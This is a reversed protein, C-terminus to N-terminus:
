DGYNGLKEIKWNGHGLGHRRSAVINNSREGPVFGREGLNRPRPEHKMEDFWDLGLDACVFAWIARFAYASLSLKRRRAAKILFPLAQPRVSYSMSRRPERRPQTAGDIRGLIRDAWPEQSLDPAM